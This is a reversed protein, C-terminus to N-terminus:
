LKLILTLTKNYGVHAEVEAEALAAAQQDDWIPLARIKM